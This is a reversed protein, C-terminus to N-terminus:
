SYLMVDVWHIFGRARAVQWIRTFTETTPLFTLMAKGLALPNILASGEEYAFPDRLLLVQLSAPM